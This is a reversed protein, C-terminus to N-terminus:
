KMVVLLYNAKYMSILLESHTITDTDNKNNTGSSKLLMCLRATLTQSCENLIHSVFLTHKMRWYFLALSNNIGYIGCSWLSGQTVILMKSCIPLPVLLSM